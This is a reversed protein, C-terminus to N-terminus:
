FCSERQACELTSLERRLFQPSKPGRKETRDLEVIAERGGRLVESEWRAIEALADSEEEQARAPAKERTADSKKKRDVGLWSEGNLGHLGVYSTYAVGVSRGIAEWDGTTYREVLVGARADLVVRGGKSPTLMGRGRVDGIDNHLTLGGLGLDHLAELVSGPGSEPRHMHPEISWRTCGHTYQRKKGAKQANGATTQRHQHRLNYWVHGADREKVLLDTCVGAMDGKQAPGIRRGIALLVAAQFALECNPDNEPGVDCYVKMNTGVDLDGQVFVNM